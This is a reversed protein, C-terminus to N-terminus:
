TAILTTVDCECVEYLISMALYCANYIGTIYEYM